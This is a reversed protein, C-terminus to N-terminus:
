EGEDFGVQAGVRALPAVKGGVKAGEDVGDIKGV